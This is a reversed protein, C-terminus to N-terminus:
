TNGGKPQKAEKHPASGVWVRGGTALRERLPDLLHNPVTPTALPVDPNHHGHYDSGGTVALVEIGTTAATHLLTQPPDSGDSARTHTHLDGPHHHHM